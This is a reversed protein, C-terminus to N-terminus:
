ESPIKLNNNPRNWSAWNCNPYNKCGYFTRGKKTRRMVIEGEDKPCKSEIGLDM